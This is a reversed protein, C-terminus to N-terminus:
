SSAHYYECHDSVSCLYRCKFYAIDPPFSKARKIQEICSIAWRKAEDFREQLFPERILVGKRYCNFVLNSPNVGYELCVPIAYLYLQRLYADLEQDTKTPKKRGSREKLPHSKHDWIEISHDEGEVILDVFGIFPYGGVSFRVPKEAALVKGSPKKLKELCDLGSEFFSLYVSPSPADAVVKGNFNTLFHLSAGDRTLKNLYFRELIEHMFSGYSSFFLSKEECDYIYRLFFRYPCDEYTKIRSYSWTMGDLIFSYM